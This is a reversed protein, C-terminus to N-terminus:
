QENDTTDQISKVAVLLDKVARKYENLASNMAKANAKFTEISAMPREGDCTFSDKSSQIINVQAQAKAKKDNVADVLAQYNDLTKGSATYYEQVNTTIKTFVAMQKNGREAIRSMSNKINQERNKCVKLKAETFKAEKKDSLQNKSNESDKSDEKNEEKGHKEKKNSNESLDKRSDESRQSQKKYNVENESKESEKKIETTEESYEPQALLRTPFVYAFATILLGFAILLPAKKISNLM